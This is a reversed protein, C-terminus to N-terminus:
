YDSKFGYHEFIDRYRELIGQSTLGYEELSYSHSSKYARVKEQQAALHQAFEPSMEIGFKKYLTTITEEPSRTLADYLVVARHNEPMMPLCKMPNRYFHEVVDLFLERIEESVPAKDPSQGLIFLMLSAFSPVADYPNRVCCVIKADPFTAILSDIKASFSPNKSLLRKDPGHIYLHRQVCKRYFAMVQKRTEPDAEEDFYLLHRIENIFPFPFIMFASAFKHMLLWEDEEPEFLSIHHMKRFGALVFEDLKGLMKRLPGGVARDMRALVLLCKREIISPALILEWFKFTTFQDVDQALLRHLLTTGSRAIGVTFLPEKIEIKKYGPFFIDDLMFALAHLINGLLLAPVFLCQLLFRKPTLPVLRNKNTLFVLRALRFFLPFGFMIKKEM